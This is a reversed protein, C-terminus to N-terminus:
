LCLEAPLKKCSLWESAMIAFDQLNVECDGDLDSLLVESCPSDATVSFEFTGSQGNFGAVRFYYIKADIM